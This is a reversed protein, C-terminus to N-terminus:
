CDFQVLRQPSIVTHGDFFMPYRDAFRGFLHKGFIQVLSDVSEGTRKSLADILAILESHDYSGVATYAGHSVLEADDIIEDVMEPAYASEVLDLFETFVIGLM